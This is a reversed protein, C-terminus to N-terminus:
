KNVQSVLPLGRVMPKWGIGVAVVTIITVLYM